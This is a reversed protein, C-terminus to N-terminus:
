IQGNEELWEFMSQEGALDEISTHATLYGPLTGSYDKHTIILDKLEKLADGCFHDQLWTGDKLLIGSKFCTKMRPWVAVIENVNITITNEPGTFDDQIEVWPWNVNKIYKSM